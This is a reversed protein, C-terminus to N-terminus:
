GPAGVRHSRHVVRHNHLLHGKHVPVGHHQIWLCAPHLLLQQVLVVQALVAFVGIVSLASGGFLSFGPVPGRFSHRAKRGNKLRLGLAPRSGRPPPAQMLVKGVRTLVRRQGSALSAPAFSGTRGPVFLLPLTGVASIIMQTGGARLAPPVRFARRFPCEWLLLGRGQLSM